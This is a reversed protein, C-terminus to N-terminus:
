LAAYDPDIRSEGDGRREGAHRRKQPARHDQFTQNGIKTGMDAASARRRVMAYANAQPLPTDNLQATGRRVTRFLPGM